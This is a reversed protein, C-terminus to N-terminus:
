IIDDVGSKKVVYKRVQGSTAMLPSPLSQGGWLVQLNRGMEGGPSVTACVKKGGWIKGALNYSKKYWSRCFIM